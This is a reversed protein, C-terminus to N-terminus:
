GPLGTKWNYPPHLGGSKGPYRGLVVATLDDYKDYEYNTVQGLQDTAAVRRGQQDYATTVTNSDAFM